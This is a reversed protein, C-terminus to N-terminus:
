DHGGRVVEKVLCLDAPEIHLLRVIGVSIQCIPDTVEQTRKGVRSKKDGQIIVTV